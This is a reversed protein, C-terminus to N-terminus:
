KLLAKTLAVRIGQINKDAATESRMKPYRAPKRLAAQGYLGRCLSM